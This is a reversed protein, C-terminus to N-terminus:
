RERDESKIKNDIKEEESKLNKDAENKSQNIQKILEKDLESRNQINTPLSSNFRSNFISNSDKTFISSRDESSIKRDINENGINNRDQKIENYGTSEKIRGEAEDLLQGTNNSNIQQNSRDDRQIERNDDRQRQSSTGPIIKNHGSLKTSTSEVHRDGETSVGRFRNDLEKNRTGSGGDNRTREENINGKRRLKDGDRNSREANISKESRTFGNMLEEKDYDTGLRKARIPQTRDPHKYSIGNKTERTDINFNEKLYKTFEDLTNTRSKAFEICKKLEGKWTTEGRLEKRLEGSTLREKSKHDLDITKLGERECIRNSERKIDWLSKNSSNYKLGNEFSVSNILMHNHIHDKDTHTVILVEFGKFQKEVLEKGLEHAKEPTIKDNPDFSQIVHHYKVSELKNYLEKTATFENVMNNPNCNVGSILHEETKEAQTLYSHLKSPTAKSSHRKIVAM